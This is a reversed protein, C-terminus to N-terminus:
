AAEARSFIRQYFFGSLTGLAAWFLLSTITAAVIFRRALAEPAAAAYEAPQPAGYAHPLVILVVGALLLIPRRTMFLLALGGGTLIVTAMWWVQRALLPAAETGPVEPPLGLSPALSVAAFAALGFYLGRRWDVKGGWIAYIAVLALAFGIGSLIDALVTFATREFGDAPEWAGAGHDHEHSEAAPMASMDAASMGAMQTGSQTAATSSPGAAPAEAAKEYVEAALIVPVTTVQHVLTVFVGALLGALAAATFLRRFRDM